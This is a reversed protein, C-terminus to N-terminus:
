IICDLQTAAQNHQIRAKRCHCAEIGTIQKVERHFQEIKYRINCAEQVADTSDNDLDNTAVYEMKDTSIIVPFLKVKKDKSFAKIKIIKCHELENPTHSDLVTNQRIQVRYGDM